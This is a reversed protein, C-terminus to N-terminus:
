EASEVSIKSNQFATENDEAPCPFHDFIDFIGHLFDNKSSSTAYSYAKQEVKERELYIMEKLRRSINNDM